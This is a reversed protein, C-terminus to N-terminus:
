VRHRASKRIVMAIKDIAAKLKALGESIEELKEALLDFGSQSIFSHDKIKDEAMKFFRGKGKIFIEAFPRRNDLM